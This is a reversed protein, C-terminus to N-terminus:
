PWKPPDRSFALHPLRKKLGVIKENLGDNIEYNNYHGM